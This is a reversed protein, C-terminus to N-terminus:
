LCDLVEECINKEKMISQAPTKGQSPRLLVAANLERLIKEYEAIRYQLYQKLVADKRQILLRGFAYEDDSYEVDSGRKCSLITYFRGEFIIHENAIMFGATHIFKRVTHIDLQPQLVLRDISQLVDMGERLIKIILMGGMGAISVCDAENPLLPALGSGQRTQASETLGWVAINSKARQLPGSNLDCLIARSVRGSLLAEIAIYGHDTGIDALVNGSIESVVAEIRRSIM